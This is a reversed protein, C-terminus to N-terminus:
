ACVQRAAHQLIEENTQGSSDELAILLRGCLSGLGAILRVANRAVDRENVAGDTLYRTVVEGAFSTDGRDSENWATMVAIAKLLNTNVAERDQPM